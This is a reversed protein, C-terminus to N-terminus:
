SALRRLRFSRRAWRRYEAADRKFAEVCVECRFSAARGEPGIGDLTGRAPVGIHECQPLEVIELAGGRHRKLLRM